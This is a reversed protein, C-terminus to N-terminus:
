GKRRYLRVADSSGAYSRHDIEKFNEHSVSALINEKEVNLGCISLNLDVPLPQFSKQIIEFLIAFLGRHGM